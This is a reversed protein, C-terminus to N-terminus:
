AITLVEGKIPVQEPVGWERGADALLCWLYDAM